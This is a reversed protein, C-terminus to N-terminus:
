SCAAKQLRSNNKTKKLLRLTHTRIFKTRIFFFFHLMDNTVRESLLFPLGFKWRTVISKPIILSLLSPAIIIQCKDSIKRNTKLAERLLNCSLFLSEWTPPHLHNPLRFIYVSLGAKSPSSSLKTFITSWHIMNQIIKKRKNSVFICFISTRFCYIGGRRHM